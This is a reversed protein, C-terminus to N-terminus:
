LKNELDDDYSAAAVPYFGDWAEETKVHQDRYM